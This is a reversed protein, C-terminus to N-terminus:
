LTVGKLHDWRPDYTVTQTPLDCTVRPVIIASISITKAGPSTSSVTFTTVQQTRSKHSLGAVGSISLIERTRSLHLGQALRESIFSVSSASDLLGRAQVSLGNPSTVMVRCTMLLSNPKISTTLHSATKTNPPVPHVSNSPEQVPQSHLFSHHLGQCTKCRHLSTCQKSYHGPILCNFCLDNSKLTSLKDDRTMSKFTSCSYVPHNGSKCAVCSKTVTSAHSSVPKSPNTKKYESRFQKKPTDAIQAESAQARLDLFELLESCPPVATHSQSTRQWEFMTTSDLKLEVLSTIFQPSPECGM